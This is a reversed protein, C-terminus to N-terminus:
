FVRDHMLQRPSSICASVLPHKLPKLFLSSFSVSPSPSVSLPSLYLSTTLGLDLSERGAYPSISLYQHSKIYFRVEYKEWPIHSKKKKVKKFARLYPTSLTAYWPLGPFDIKPTSYTINKAKSFIRTSHFIFLYRPCYTSFCYILTTVNFFLLTKM